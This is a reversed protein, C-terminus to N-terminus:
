MGTNLVVSSYDCMNQVEKRVEETVEIGFQDALVKIKDERTNRPSLFKDLMQLIGEGKEDDAAPLYVMRIAVLDYDAKDEPGCEGELVTETLDFAKIVGRKKVPSKPCIWISYVKKIDQFNEGIFDVGKRFSIMRCCYYVARSLLPYGPESDNQAEVNIILAILGSGNPVVARFRIDYTVKHETVTIDETNMGSIISGKMTQRVGTESKVNTEDPYVGEIGVEPEGEIYKQEIDKPKQASYVM